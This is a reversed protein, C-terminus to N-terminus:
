GRQFSVIRTRRLHYYRHNFRRHFYLHLTVIEDCTVDMIIRMMMM